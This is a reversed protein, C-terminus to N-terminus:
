FVLLAGLTKDLATMWSTFISSVLTISIVFRSSLDKNLLGLRLKMLVMLFEDVSTLKRIPGFKHPSSTFNRKVRSNIIVSTGKWRRKVFPSVFGHLATFVKKLLKDHLPRNGKGKLDKNTKELIYKDKRLRLNDTRTEELEKKMETVLKEMEEFKTMLENSKSCAEGADEHHTSTTTASSKRTKTAIRQTPPKRAKPKEPQEYGLVLEPDPHAPTPMGDVFHFSCVRQDKSPDMLQWPKKADERNV